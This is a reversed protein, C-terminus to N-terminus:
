EARASHVVVRRAPSSASPCDPDKAQSTESRLVERMFGTGLRHDIKLRSSLERALTSKGTGATGGILIIPKQM